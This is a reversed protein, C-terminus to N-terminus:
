NEKRCTIELRNLFINCLKKHTQFYKQKTEANAVNSRNSEMSGLTAKPNLYKYIYSYLVGLSICMYAWLKYGTIDQCGFEISM